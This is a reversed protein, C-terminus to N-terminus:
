KATSIIILAKGGAAVGGGTEKGREAKKLILHARGPM